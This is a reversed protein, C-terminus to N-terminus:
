FRYFKHLNLVAFIFFQLYAKTGVLRRYSLLLADPSTVLLDYTRSRNPFSPNKKSDGTDSVPFM